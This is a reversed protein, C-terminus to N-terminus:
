KLSHTGSFYEDFPGTKNRHNSRSIWVFIALPLYYGFLTLLHLVRLGAWFNWGGTDDRAAMANLIERDSPSALVPMLADGNWAFVGNPPRGVPDLGDYILLRARESARNVAVHTRRTGDLHRYPFSMLERGHDKIVVFAFNRLRGSNNTLEDSVRVFVIDGVVGDGDFDANGGPSQLEYNSVLRSYRFDKGIAWLSIPLPIIILILCITRRQM